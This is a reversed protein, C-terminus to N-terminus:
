LEPKSHASDKGGERLGLKDILNQLHRRSLGLEKATRSQNGGNEALRVELLARQFTATAERWDSSEFFFSAESLDRAPTSRPSFIPEIMAPTVIRVRDVIWRQALNQLERVNGPWAHQELLALADRDLDPLPQGERRAHAALSERILPAVDEPRDRLPPIEVILSNLRYFLDARVAGTEVSRRPEDGFTAVIRVDFPRDEEGGLPRYRRTELVRLLRGQLEFPMEDLQDLVLTSGDARQFLGDRDQEAGTFAGRVYGFLEAELLAEPLASCNEIVAARSAQPSRAHVRSVLASKGVGSEGWVLLPLPSQAWRDISAELQQLPESEAVWRIPPQSGSGAVTEIARVELRQTLAETELSETELSEFPTPSASLPEPKAELLHSSVRALTEARLEPADVTRAGDAVSAAGRVELWSEEFVPGLDFPIQEVDDSASAADGPPTALWWTLPLADVGSETARGWCRVSGNWLVLGIVSDAQLSRRLAEMEVTWPLPPTSKDAPAGRVTGGEAFGLDVLGRHDHGPVPQIREVLARWRRDDLRRRFRGLLRRIEEWTPGGSDGSPVIAGRRRQAEIRRVICWQAVGLARLSEEPLSLQAAERALDWGTQIWAVPPIRDARFARLFRNSLREISVLLRSVRPAAEERAVERAADLIREAREYRDLRAVVRSLGVLSRVRYQSRGSRRAARAASAFGRLAVDLEGNRLHIESETFLAMADVRDQRRDKSRELLALASEREDCRVLVMALAVRGRHIQHPNGVRRAWRLHFLRLQYARHPDGLLLYLEGLNASIGAIARLDDQERAVRIGRLQTRLAGLLDWRDRRVTGLGQSLYPFLRVNGEETAADLLTRYLAEAEDFRGSEYWVAALNTELHRARPAADHVRALRVGVRLLREAENRRGARRARASLGSVAHLTSDLDARPGSRADNLARRYWRHADESAGLLDALNALQVWTSPSLDAPAGESERRVIREVWGRAEDRDGSALALRAADVTATWFLSTDGAEAARRFWLRAAESRGNAEAVRGALQAEGPKARSAWGDVNREIETWAERARGSTSLAEVATWGFWGASEVDGQSTLVWAARLSLAIVQEAEAADSKEEVLVRLRERDLEVLAVLAKAAWTDPAFAIWVQAVRRVADDVALCEEDPIMSTHVRVAPWSGTLRSGRGPDALWTRWPDAEAEAIIPWPISGPSLEYGSTSLLPPRVGSEIWEMLAGPHGRAGGLEREM